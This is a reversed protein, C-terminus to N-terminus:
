RGCDPSPLPHASREAQTANLTRLYDAFAVQLQQRRDVDTPPSPELVLNGVTSLLRQLNQSDEQALRARANIAEVLVNNCEQQRDVQEQQRQTLDSNASNTRATMVVGVVAVLGVAFYMVRQARSFPLTSFRLRVKGDPMVIRRVNVAMGAIVGFLSGALFWLANDIMMM